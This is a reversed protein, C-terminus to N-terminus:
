ILSRMSPMDTALVPQNAPDQNRLMPNYQQQLNGQEMFSLLCLGLERSPESARTVPRTLMIRRLVPPFTNYTDHYNHPLGVGVAQSQKHMAYRRAAERPLTAQEAPLLLAVLIGIIAIVVLLEVLTFGTKQSCRSSATGYDLDGFLCTRSTSPTSEM